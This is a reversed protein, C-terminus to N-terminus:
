AFRNVRDFLLSSPLHDRESVLRRFESEEFVKKRRLGRYLRRFKRGDDGFVLVLKGRRLHEAVQKAAAYVAGSSPGVFLNHYRAFEKVAEFADQDSVRKMHKLEDDPLRTDLRFNEARPLMRRALKEFRHTAPWARSARQALMRSTQHIPESEAVV